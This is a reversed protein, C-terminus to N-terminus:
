FKAHSSYLENAANHTRNETTNNKTYQLWNGTKGFNWLESYNVTTIANQAPNLEGRNLTKIQGLNNYSYLESHTTAGSVYM